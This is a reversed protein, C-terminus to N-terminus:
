DNTAYPLEYDNHTHSPINFVSAMYHALQYVTVYRSDIAKYKVLADTSHAYISM